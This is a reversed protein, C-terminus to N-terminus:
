SAIKLQCESCDCQNQLFIIANTSKNGLLFPADPVIIGLCFYQLQYQQEWVLITLGGINRIGLYEHLPFFASSILFQKQGLCLFKSHCFILLAQFIHKCIIVSNAKMVEVHESLTLIREIVCSPGEWCVLLSLVLLTILFSCFASIVFRAFVRCFYM